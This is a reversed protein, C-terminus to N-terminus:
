LIFNIDTIGEWRLKLKLFRLRADMRGAVLDRNQKSDHSLMWHRLGGTRGDVIMTSLAKRNFDKMTMQHSCLVKTTDPRTTMISKAGWMDGKLSLGGELMMFGAFTQKPTLKNAQHNQSGFNNSDSM